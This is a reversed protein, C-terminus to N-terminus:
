FSTHCSPGHLYPLLQLRGRNSSLCCRNLRSLAVVVVVVVVHVVAVVVVAVVAVVVM